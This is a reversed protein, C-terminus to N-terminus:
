KRKLIMGLKRGQMEDITIKFIKVADQNDSSKKYYEMRKKLHTVPDLDRKLINAKVVSEIVALDTVLEIKGDIVVSQWKTNNDIWRYVNFCVNKNINLYDWKRGKPFMSLYLAGDIYVFGFPICYPKEGDTFALVGDKETKIIDLIEENNLESM